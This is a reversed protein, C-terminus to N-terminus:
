LEVVTRIDELKLLVCPFRLVVFDSFALLIMILLFIPDLLLDDFITERFYDKITYVSLPTLKELTPM